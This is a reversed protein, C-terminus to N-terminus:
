YIVIPTAYSLGTSSMWSHSLYYHALEHAFVYAIASEPDEFGCLVSLAKNEIRIKGKSVSAIFREEDSFELRPPSPFNNGISHILSKLVSKATEQCSSNQSFMTNHNLFTFVLSILIHKFISKM